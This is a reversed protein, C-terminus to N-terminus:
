GLINEVFKRLKKRDDYEFDERPEGYSCFGDDPMRAGNLKPCNDWINRQVACDKCRVVPVLDAKELCEPHYAPAATVPQGCFKCTPM